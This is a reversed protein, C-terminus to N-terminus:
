EVEELRLRLAAAFRRINHKEIGEYVLVTEGDLLERLEGITGRKKSRTAIWNTM